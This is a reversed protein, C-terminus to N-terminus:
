GSDGVPQYADNEAYHIVAAAAEDADPVRGERWASWVGLVERVISVELLLHFGPRQRSEVWDERILAAESDPEWPRRAFLAPEVEFHDGDDVEDLRQVLDRITAIPETV